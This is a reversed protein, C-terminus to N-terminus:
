GFRKVNIKVDYPVTDCMLSIASAVEEQIQRCVKTVPVESNPAIIVDIKVVAKGEKDFSVRVGSDITFPVRRSSSVQAGSVTSVASSAISAIAQRSIGMTGQRSYNNILIYDRTSM